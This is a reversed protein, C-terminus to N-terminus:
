VVIHEWTLCASGHQPRVAGARARGRARVVALGRLGCASTIRSNKGILFSLRRSWSSVPDVSCLENDYFREFLLRSMRASVGWSSVRWVKSPVGDSALRKGRPTQALIEWMDGLGFVGGERLEPSGIEM